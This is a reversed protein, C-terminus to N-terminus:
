GLTGSPASWHQRSAPLSPIMSRQLRVVDIRTSLIKRGAKLGVPETRPWRLEAGGVRGGSSACGILIPLPSLASVLKPFTLRM